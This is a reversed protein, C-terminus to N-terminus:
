EENASRIKIPRSRMSEIRQAAKFVIDLSINPVEANANLYGYLYEAAPTTLGARLCVIYSVSEAEFEEFDIMGDAESTISAM